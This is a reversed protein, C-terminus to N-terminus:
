WLKGKRLLAAVGVVAVLLVTIEALTDLGRFDTIIVTVADQGHASPTRRLYEESVSPAASPASLFGWVTVFAALGALGGAALNRQHGHHYLRHDGQDEDARQCPQRPRSRGSLEFDARAARLRTPRPAM